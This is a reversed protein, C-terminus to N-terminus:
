IRRNPVTATENGFGNLFGNHSTIENGCRHLEARAPWVIGHWTQTQTHPLASADRTFSTFAGRRVAPSPAPCDHETTRIYVGREFRAFEIILLSNRPDGRCTHTICCWCCWCCRCCLPEADNSRSRLVCSHNQAERALHVYPITTHDTIAISPINAATWHM